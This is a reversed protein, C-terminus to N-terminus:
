QKWGTPLLSMNDAVPADNNAFVSAPLLSLDDGKNTDFGSLKVEPESIDAKL